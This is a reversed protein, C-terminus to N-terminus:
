QERYNRRDQDGTDRHLLRRAVGVSNAACALLPEHLEGLVLAACSRAAVALVRIVVHPRTGLVEGIRKGGVVAIEEVRDAAVVSPGLLHGEHTACTITYTYKQKCGRFPEAVAM